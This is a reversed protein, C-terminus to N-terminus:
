EILRRHCHPYREEGEVKAGMGQWVFGDLAEKWAKYRERAMWGHLIICTVREENMLGEGLRSSELSRRM